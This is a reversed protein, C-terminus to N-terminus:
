AELYFRALSARGYFRHQRRRCSVRVYIYMYLATFPAHNEAPRKESARLAPSAKVARTKTERGDTLGGNRQGRRERWRLIIEIGRAETRTWKVGGGSHGNRWSIDVRLKFLQLANRM